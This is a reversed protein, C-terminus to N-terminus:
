RYVWEYDVGEPVGYRIEDERESYRDAPRWFNLKLVKRYLKRATLTSPGPKYESPEDKWRYANTLGFVYVSFRVIRPDIDEWAAVGWVSEGVAIERCMGVTTLFKRNPDERLRIPDMAVPIVRDPYAKTFGEDGKMHQHGELVFEPVFRVPRDVEQVEYLQKKDYLEKKDFPEYPVQVPHMIKGTNTIVYVMYWIPKRQMYGSPQPVDVWMMRVPKFQFRLVWIDRRFAIEKAWDFKPDVALLGVADQWSVTEALARIPDISILVGPALPRYPSKVAIPKQGPKAAPQDAILSLNRPNALERVDNASGSEGAANQGHGQSCAMVWMVASLWTGVPMWRNM